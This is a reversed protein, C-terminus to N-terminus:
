CSCPKPVRSANPIRPTSGRRVLYGESMRVHTSTPHPNPNSTTSPLPNPNLSIPNPNPPTPKSQPSHTQIPPITNNKPHQIPLLPFPSTPRPVEHKLTFSIIHHPTFNALHTCRHRTRIIHHPAATAHGPRTTGSYPLTAIDLLPRVAVKLQLSPKSSYWPRSAFLLGRGVVGTTVQVLTPVVEDHFM